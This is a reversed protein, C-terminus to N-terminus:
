RRDSGRPTGSRRASVPEEDGDDDPPDICTPSLTLECTRAARAKLFCGPKRVKRMSKLAFVERGKGERTRVLRVEGFAGRGIVQLSEFDRSTIKKRSEMVIEGEEAALQERLSTQLMTTLLSLSHKPTSPHAQTPRFTRGVKTSEPMGESAMSKELLAARANKSLV